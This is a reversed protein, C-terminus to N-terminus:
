FPVIIKKHSNRVANDMSSGNAFRPVAELYDVNKTRLKVEILEVDEIDVDERSISFQVPTDKYVDAM